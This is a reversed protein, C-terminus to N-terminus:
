ERSRPSEHIRKVRRESDNLHEIVAQYAGEADRSQICQFWNRHSQLGREVAGPVTYGEAIVGRLQGVLPELLAGLFTNHTARAVALHFALDAGAWKELSGAHAEMRKLCDALTALDAEDAREAALRANWGELIRRVEYLDAISEHAGIFRIYRGLADSTPETSPQNVYAGSGNRIQILGREKLFKFAERVVNRSVGFQNALDQESPLQSGVGFTGTIIAEEIDEAVIESLRKREVTKFKNM